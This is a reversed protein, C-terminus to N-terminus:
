CMFIIILSVLAEIYLLIILWKMKVTKQMTVWKNLFDHKVRMFYKWVKTKKQIMNRKMKKILLYVKNIIIDVNGM